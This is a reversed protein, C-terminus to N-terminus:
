PGVVYPDAIHELVPQIEVRTLVVPLRRPRKAREFEGLEGLDRKLGEQFFFVLANLAQNQTSGSVRGFVALNEM